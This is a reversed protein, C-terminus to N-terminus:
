ETALHIINYRDKDLASRVIELPNSLTGGLLSYLIADNFGSLLLCNPTNADPVPYDVSNGNLNWFIITPRQYGAVTYKRGIEDWNAQGSGANNFQMDSLVLLVQPMQDAPVQFTTAITLILDFASQFNTSGGWPSTKISNVKEMLSEGRMSLLQPQEQFTIFKGNYQPSSNLLSVIMGLSVAVEVAQPTSHNFMSGSVDILPLVNFGAPWKTRRDALFAVWQAEVTEDRQTTPQSAGELYHAVIQYPMLVATNMKAEGRQVKSLFETYRQEDHRQFAKKYRSGAVSPVKSYEIGTWAKACMEREVIALRARLPTLYQTRYQRPTVGLATALKRAAQHKKDVAGGESPAYKGCLSAREATADERLKDAILRVAQPELETGFFCIPVDKWSGFVPIHTLNALLHATLGRTQMHRVLARFLKREGKGGRCDRLHFVFKLTRLPDSAWAADFYQELSRPGTTAATRRKKKDKKSQKVTISRYDTCPIDRVSKFYLEVLPDNVTAFSAAGNWTFATPVIQTM